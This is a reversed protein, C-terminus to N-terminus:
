ERDQIANKLEHQVQRLRGYYDKFSIRIGLDSPPSYQVNEFEENAQNVFFELDSLISDDTTTFAFQIRPSGNDLAGLLVFGKLVLYAAFATDSTTYLSEQRMQGDTLSM